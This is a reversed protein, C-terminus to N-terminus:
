WSRGSLVRGKQELRWQSTLWRKLVYGLALWVRLGSLHNILSLTHEMGLPHNWSLLQSGIIRAVQSALILLKSPLGPLYNTLGWRWFLWLLFLSCAHSLHYLAQKVLTIGQTWVGTGGFSLFLFTDAFIHNSLIVPSANL